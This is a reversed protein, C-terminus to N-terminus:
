TRPRPLRREEDQTLLGLVARKQWYARWREAQDRDTFEGLGYEASSTLPIAEWGGEAEAFADAIASYRPGKFHSVATDDTTLPVGSLDSFLTGASLRSDFYATKLDRIEVQMVKHVEQRRTRPKFPEQYSFDIVEGNTQVVEFGPYRGILPPGIRIAAAGPGIKDEADPHMDLLDRILDFEEGELETGVPHGHLVAQVAAKAKGKTDYRRQGIFFEPM